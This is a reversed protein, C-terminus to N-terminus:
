GKRGIWIRRPVISAEGQGATSKARSRCLKLNSFPLVQRLIPQPAPNLRARHVIRWFFSAFGGFRPSLAAMYQQVALVQGTDSIIVPFVIMRTMDDVTARGIGLLRQIGKIKHNIVAPWNKILM